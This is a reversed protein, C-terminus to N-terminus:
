LIHKFILKGNDLANLGKNYTEKVHNIMNENNIKSHIFKLNNVFMFIIFLIFYNYLKNKNEDFFSYKIFYLLNM